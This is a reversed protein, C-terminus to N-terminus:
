PAAEAETERHAARYELVGVRIWAVAGALMWLLGAILIIVNTILGVLVLCSGIALVFPSISPSPMHIGSLDPEPEAVVGDTDVPVMETKRPLGPPRVMAILPEPPVARIARTAVGEEAVAPAPAADMPAFDAPALGARALEASPVYIGEGAIMREPFVVQEGTELNTLAVDPPIEPFYWKGYIPIRAKKLKATDIENKAAWGLAKADLVM